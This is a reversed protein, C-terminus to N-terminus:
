KNLIEVLNDLTIIKLPKGKEIQTLADRCPAGCFGRAPDVILYDTKGSVSKKILGGRDMIPRTRPNKPDNNEYGNWDVDLVFSKGEFEINDVHQVRNGVEESQSALSQFGQENNSEMWGEVTHTVYMPDYPNVEKKNIGSCQEKVSEKYQDLKEVFESAKFVKVKIGCDKNFLAIQYARKEEADNADELVLYSWEATEEYKDPAKMGVTKAFSQIKKTALGSGVACCMIKPNRLYEVTNDASGRICQDLINQLIRKIDTNEITDYKVSENQYKFLHNNQSSNNKSKNDSVCWELFDYETVIHTTKGNQSDEELKDALTTLMVIYSSSDAYKNRKKWISYDLAAIDITEIKRRGRYRMPIAGSEMIKKIWQDDIISGDAMIDVYQGEWDIDKPYVRWKCIRDVLKNAKEYLREDIGEAFDTGEGLVTGGIEYYGKGLGKFLDAKVKKGTLGDNTEGLATKLAESIPIGEHYTSIFDKEWDSLEDPNTNRKAISITLSTEDKSKGIIEVLESDESDAFGTLGIKYIRGKHFLGNKKRPACEAIMEITKQDSLLTLVAAAFAKRHLREEDTLEPLGPLFEAHAYNMWDSGANPDEKRMRDVVEERSMMTSLAAHADLDGDIREELKSFSTTVTCEKGSLTVKYKKGKPWNIKDSDKVGAARLLEAPDITDMNEYVNFYKSM